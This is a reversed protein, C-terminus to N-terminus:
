RATHFAQTFCFAKHMVCAAVHLIGSAATTRDSDGDQWPFWLRVAGNLTSWDSRAEHFVNSLDDIVRRM